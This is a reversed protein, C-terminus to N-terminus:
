VAKCLLLSTKTAFQLESDKDTETSLCSPRFVRVSTQGKPEFVDDDDSLAVARRSGQGGPACVRVELINFVANEEEVYM